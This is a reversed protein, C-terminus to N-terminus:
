KILYEAVTTSVDRLKIWSPNKPSSNRIRLKGLFGIAAWEKREERPVYPANSDWDPNLKDVKAPIYRASGPIVIDPPVANSRYSVEKGAEDAWSVLTVDEKVVSGFDDRLFKGQWADWTNNGLVCYTVSVAGFIDSAADSDTALRIRGESALVVTMGRRDEDGANGDEWEFMEAYDFGNNVISGRLNLNGTGARFAAQLTTDTPQVATGNRLRVELDTNANGGAGEVANLYVVRGSQDTGRGMLQLTARRYATPVPAFAVVANVETSADVASAQVSGGVTAGGSIGVNGNWDVVLGDGGSATGVRLARNNPPAELFRLETIRVKDTDAGWGFQNAIAAMYVFRYFVYSTTNAFTVTYTSGSGSGSAGVFNQTLDNVLFWTTGDHSGFVAHRRVGTGSFRIGTIARASPFRLQLWEGLYNTGSATTSTSGVYNGTSQQYGGSTAWGWGGTSYDFALEPRADYHAQSSATPTYGQGQLNASPPHEYAAAVDLRAAPSATNVGVVGDGRVRMLERSANSSAGAHFGHFSTDSAGHIQYRMSHNNMGLGYFQHDNNVDEWLVVKRNALTNGLQLQANPAITGIGVNGNALIHLHQGWVGLGLRNSSSGDAVHTYYIEAQNNQTNAKGLTISRNAGNAITSDLASIFRGANSDASTGLLLSTETGAAGARVTGAVDLRRSPNSTGIGVNGLETIRLREVGRMAFGVNSLGADVRTAMAVASTTRALTRGSWVETDTAAIDGDWGLDIVKDAHLTMTDLNAHYSAVTVEELCMSFYFMRHKMYVVSTKDSATLIVFDAEPLVMAFPNYSGSVRLTASSVAPDDDRHAMTLEFQCGESVYNITGRVGLTFASALVDTPVVALRFWQSRPVQTQQNGNVRNGIVGYMTRAHQSGMSLGGNPVRANSATISGLVTVNSASLTQFAGSVSTVAGHVALNENIIVSNSTIAFSALQNQKTGMLIRQTNSETFFLLDNRASNTFGVQANSSVRMYAKM